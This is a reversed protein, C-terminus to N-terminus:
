IGINFPFRKWRTNKSVELFHPTYVIENYKVRIAYLGLATM